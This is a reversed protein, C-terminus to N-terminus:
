KKDKDYTYTLQTIKVTQKNLNTLDSTLDYNYDNSIVNSGDNLISDLESTNGTINYNEDGEMFWHEEYNKSSGSIVTSTASSSNNYISLTKGSGKKIRISGNGVTLIVDSGSVSTKSIKAGTIKIKDGTSYDTIVDNGQGSQYYFFDNGAGGTM